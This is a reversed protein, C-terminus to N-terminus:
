GNNMFPRNQSDDHNAGIVGRFNHFERSRKLRTNNASQHAVLQFRLFTIITLPVPRSGLRKRPRRRVEETNTRPELCPRPSQPVPRGSFISRARKTQESVSLVLQDSPPRLDRPGCSLPLPRPRRPHGVILFPPQPRSLHVASQPGVRGRRASSAFSTGRFCVVGDHPSVAVVASRHSERGSGPRLDAM